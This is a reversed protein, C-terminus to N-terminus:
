RDTQGGQLRDLAKRAGSQYPHLQLETQYEEIAATRRSIQELATGLTYHYGDADPQLELAKRLYLIADEPQHQLLRVQALGFWATALAPDLQLAARFWQEAQVLDGSQQFAFGAFEAARWGPKLEYSRVFHPAAEQYKGRTSLASGYNLQAWENQPAKNVARAFLILDNAWYQSQIASAFALIVVIAVALPRILLLEPWRKKMWAFASGALLAVGLMSMYMYRDHVFDDENMWRLNLSPLLPLILWAFAVWLQRNRKGAIVAFSVLAVLLLFNLLFQVDKPSEILRLHYHPSLGIPLVTRLLNFLLIKPASLLNTSWPVFSSTAAAYGLVWSRLSLWLAGVLAYVTIPAVWSRASPVSRQEGSSDTWLDVLIIAPLVVSVEKTLLALLFLIGSLAWWPGSSEQLTKAKRYILFSSFCLAAALSDNVSSIWSASEVQLPHLGFIAATFLAARTDKILRRALLFALAAASVHALVTTVHFWHPNLGFLTKNLLFWLTLLPRYFRGEPGMAAAWLHHTFLYGLRGWQLNQNQPIQPPDDYVWGFTFTSAFTFLTGLLVAVLSLTENRTLSSGPEQIKLQSM